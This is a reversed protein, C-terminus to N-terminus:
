RAEKAVGKLDEKPTAGPLWEQATRPRLYAGFRQNSGLTTGNRSALPSYATSRPQDVSAVVAAGAGVVAVLVDAV